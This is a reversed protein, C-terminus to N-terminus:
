KAMARTVAAGARCRLSPDEDQEDFVVGGGFVGRGSPAFEWAYEWARAACVRYGLSLNGKM